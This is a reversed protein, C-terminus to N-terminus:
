LHNFPQFFAHCMTRRSPIREQHNQQKEDSSSITQPQVALLLIGADGTEVTVHIDDHLHLGPSGLM